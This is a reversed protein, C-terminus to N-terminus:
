TFDYVESEKVITTVFPFDTKPVQNIMDILARSGTFVVHKEEGLQIQLYLCKGCGKEYKSDEVRYDLVTIQKNLIKSMKIKDGIFSKLTSKINFDKFQKM